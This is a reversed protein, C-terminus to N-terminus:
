FLVAGCPAPAPADGVSYQFIATFFLQVAYRIQPADGVSYQFSMMLWTQIWVKNYCISADGVSYQFILALCMPGVLAPFLICRWRLISLRLDTGRVGQGDQQRCRWRLISLIAQGVRLLGTLALLADGVSYQFFQEILRVLTPEDVHCRWRLISALRRYFLHCLNEFILCRWRLISLENREIDYAVYVNLTLMELPTNFSMIEVRGNGVAAHIADGISYQFSGSALIRSTTSSAM